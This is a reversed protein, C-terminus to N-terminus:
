ANEAADEVACKATYEDDRRSLDDSAKRRAKSIRDSVLDCLTRLWQPRDGPALYDMDDLWLCEAHSENEIDDDHPNLAAHYTRVEGDEAGGRGGHWFQFSREYDIDGDSRGLVDEVAEHMASVIETAYEDYDYQGGKEVVGDLLTETNTCLTIAIEYESGIKYSM